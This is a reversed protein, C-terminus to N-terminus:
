VWSALILGSASTQSRLVRAWARTVAMVCAHTRSSADRKTGWVDENLM